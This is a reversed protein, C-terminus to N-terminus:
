APVIRNLETRTGRLRRLSRLLGPGGRRHVSWSLLTLTLLRFVVREKAAKAEM